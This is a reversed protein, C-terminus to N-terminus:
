KVGQRGKGEFHVKQFLATLQVQQKNLYTECHPGSQGQINTDSPTNNNNRKKGIHTHKPSPPNCAM